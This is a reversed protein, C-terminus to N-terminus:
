LAYSCQSCLPDCCSSLQPLLHRLPSSPQHSVDAKSALLESAATLSTRHAQQRQLQRWSDFNMINPVGGIPCLSLFFLLFPLLNHPLHSTCNNSEQTRTKVAVKPSLSIGCRLPFGKIVSRQWELKKQVEQMSWLSDACSDEINAGERAKVHEMTTNTLEELRARGKTETKSLTM